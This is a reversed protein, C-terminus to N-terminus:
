SNEDALAADLLERATKYTGGTGNAIMEKTQRIAEPSGGVDTVHVGYRCYASHSSKPPNWRASM